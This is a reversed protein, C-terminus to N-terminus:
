QALSAAMGPRLYKAVKWHYVHNTQTPGPSGTSSKRGPVVSVVKGEKNLQDDQRESKDLWRAEAIDLELVFGSKALSGAKLWFLDLFLDFEALIISFCVREVEVSLFVREALISFCACKALQSVRANLWVRYGILFM